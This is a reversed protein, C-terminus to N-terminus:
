QHRKSNIWDLIKTVNEEMQDVTENQLEWVIEPRYSEKAEESVVQMIEATINESVKKDNFGKAQLRPYLVDNSCRLVVVLDFWREPFYGCSHHDVINNKHAMLPELEDVVKDDDIIYTDWEADYGEHLGKTKVEDTVDVHRLTPDQQVM